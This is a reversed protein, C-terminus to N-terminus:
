TVTVWESARWKVHKNDSLGKNHSICCQLTNQLSATTRNELETAAPADSLKLLEVAYSFSGIANHTLWELVDSGTKNKKYM